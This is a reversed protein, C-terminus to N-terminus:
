NRHKTLTRRPNSRPKPGRGELKRARAWRERIAHMRGDPTPDESARRNRTAERPVIFHGLFTNAFQLFRSVHGGPLCRPDCDLDLLECWLEAMLWLAQDVPALGRTARRHFEHIGTAAQGVIRSDALWEKTFVGNKIREIVGPRQGEKRSGGWTRAGAEIQSMMFRDALVTEVKGLAKLLRSASRAIDPGSSETIGAQCWRRAEPSWAALGVHEIISRVRERLRKRDVALAGAQAAVAGRDRRWMEQLIEEASTLQDDSLVVTERPDCKSRYRQRM